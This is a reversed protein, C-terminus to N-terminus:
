YSEGIALSLSMPLAFTSSAAGYVPAQYKCGTAAGRQCDAGASNATSDTTDYVPRTDGIVQLGPIRIGLDVRLPGVPTLYRIGFGSSLHPAKLNMEAVTDTVDSGDLFVVGGLKGVIPFRVEASGEWLGAGGVAVPVFSKDAQQSSVGPVARYVSVGNFSYGRNSNPGGSFFGRQLLLETYHSYAICDAPLRSPILLDGARLGPHTIADNPDSAARGDTQAGADSKYQCQLPAPVKPAQALVGGFPILFGAGARLALTVHKGLPIYGRVEPRVRIDQSDVWAGQFNTQFYVGSHPTIPNPKGNEGYRYDIQLNLEAIPLTVTSYGVPAEGIGKLYSFPHENQISLYTGVKLHKDVFEREVGGRSNVDVFGVVFADENNGSQPLRHISFTAGIIGTTRAEIFGPQRLEPHVTVGPLLRFGNLGPSFDTLTFPYFIVSPKLEVSFKRLGGLFNRNEWSAVAHVEDGSSGAQLGGGLKLTRLPTPSAKFVVPIKTIRNKEGQTLQAQADVAGVVGLNGVATQAAEIKATSYEEDEALDMVIRIRKEPLDGIGELSIAGFTCHPGPSFLYRLTAQHKQLDVTADGKVDAYAYGADTLTRKMKKKVAEFLEEDFPEGEKIERTAAEMAKELKLPVKHNETDWEDIRKHILVPDGEQVSIEIRVHGTPLRTARSIRAHADYYGKVRYAREVRAMDRDLITKDFLEYDVTLRDYISAIPINEPLGGLSHSTEATAIRGKIETEPVQKNGSQLVVDDIVCGGLDARDCPHPAYLDRKICGVAFSAVLATSAIALRSLRM